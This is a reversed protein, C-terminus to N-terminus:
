KEDEDEEVPLDLKEAVLDQVQEESLGQEDHALETMASVTELVQNLQVENDLDECSICVVRIEDDDNVVRVGKKGSCFPCPIHLKFTTTMHKRRLERLVEKIVIATVVLGSLVLGCIAVDHLLHV